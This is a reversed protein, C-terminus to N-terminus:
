SLNLRYKLHHFLKIMPTPRLNMPPFYSSICFFMVIYKSFRSVLFKKTRENTAEDIQQLWQVVQSAKQHVSDTFAKLNEKVENPGNAAVSGVKGPEGAQVGCNDTLALHELPQSPM